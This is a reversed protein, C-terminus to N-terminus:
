LISLRTLITGIRDIPPPLQRACGFLCAISSKNTMVNFRYGGLAKLKTINPKSDAVLQEINEIQDEPTAM